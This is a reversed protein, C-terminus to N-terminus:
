ITFAQDFANLDENDLEFIEEISHQRHTPKNFLVLCMLPMKLDISQQKFNIELMSNDYSCPEFLEEVPPMNEEFLKMPFTNLSREFLTSIREEHESYHLSCMKYHMPFVESEYSHNNEVNVYYDFFPGGCFCCEHVSIMYRIVESTTNRNVRQNKRIIKRAATEKLTMKNIEEFKTQIRPKLNCGNTNLNMLFPLKFIEFPISCIKNFSLNLMKLSQIKGIFSPIETFLNGEIKLTNLRKLCALSKPLTSIKNNSVDLERLEKLYGIDGPIETLQNKSLGLVRLHKMHSIGYPLFKLYNCCAQLITVSHLKTINHNLEVLQCGCLYLRNEDQTPDIKFDESDEGNILNAYLTKIPNLQSKFTGVEISTLSNCHKEIGLKYTVFKNFSDLAVNLLMEKRKDLPLHPTVNYTKHLEESNKNKKAIIVENKPFSM